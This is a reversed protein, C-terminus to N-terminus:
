SYSVAGERVCEWLVIKGARVARQLRDQSRPPAKRRRTERHRRGQHRRLPHHRRTRGPHSITQSESYLSGDKRRNLITGSWVQGGLINDWMNQFFAGDHCGSDLIEQPHKGVAEELSYGSMATFAPNVWTIIGDRDTIMVGNSAAIMAASQLRLRDEAQRREREELALSVLNALAIVFTKENSTWQRIPGVHECCLVGHLLGGFHVPADLMSTIGTAPFYDRAFERTRPDRAADSAAILGFGGLARFYAPYDSAALTAGSEHTALM